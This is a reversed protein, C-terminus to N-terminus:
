KERRTSGLICWAGHVMCWAGHVMCQISVEGKERPRVLGLLGV